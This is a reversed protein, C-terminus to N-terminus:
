ILSKKLIFLNLLSILFYFKIKIFIFNLNYINGKGGIIDNKTNFIITEVTNALGFQSITKQENLQIISGKYLFYYEEIKYIYKKIILQGYIQLKIHFLKLLDKMQVELPVVMNIKVGSTDSFIINIRNDSYGPFFDIKYFDKGFIM